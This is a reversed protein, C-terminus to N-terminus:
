KNEFFNYEFFNFHFRPAGQPLTKGRWNWVARQLSGRSQVPGKYKEAWDTFLLKLTVKM